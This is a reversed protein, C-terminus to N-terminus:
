EKVEESGVEDSNKKEEDQVVEITNEKTEDVLEVGGRNAEMQEQLRKKLAPPLISSKKRRRKDAEDSNTIVEIASPQANDQKVANKMQEKRQDFLQSKEEQQKIHTEVLTQMEKELYEPTINNIDIPNFPLWYGVQGVFVHFNKDTRQLEKAKKSAFEYDPYVGRVKIIRRNNEDNISDSYEKQLEDFKISKFDLYREYLEELDWKFKDDAKVDHRKCFQLYLIQSYQELFREMIFSEKHALRDISPEVFSLLVYKQGPIPNDVSLYDIEPEQKKEDTQSM